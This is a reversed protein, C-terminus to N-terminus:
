ANGSASVGRQGATGGGDVVNGGVREGERGRIEGAGVERQVFLAVFAELVREHGGRRGLVGPETGDEVVHRAFGAMEAVAAPTRGQRALLDRREEEARTHGPFTRVARGGGHGPEAALKLEPRNGVELGLYAGGDPVGFHATGEGVARWELKARRAIIEGAHVARERGPHEHRGADRGHDEPESEELRQRSRSIM